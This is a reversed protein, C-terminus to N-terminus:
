NKNFIKKFLDSFYIAGYLSLHDLDAFYLGKKDGLYCYNEDCQKISLDIFNDGMEDFLLKKVKSFNNDYLTKDINLEKKLQDNSIYRFKLKRSLESPLNYSPNQLPGILYVEKGSKKIKNVLNILSKGFLMYDPDDIYKDNYFIKKYQWSTGIIITNIKKDNIYTEFNNKAIINCDKSINLHLTPLCGTMPILLGNRNKDELHKIISPAYMQAHSNGVLALDYEKNSNNNLYCSRSNSYLKFSIPNCRYNTQTAMSIVDSSYSEKSYNITKNFNNLNLSLILIVLLSLSYFTKKISYEYRFKKEVLYYSLSSLIIVFIFSLLKILFSVESIYYYKFYVLVPWHWLYLSFSMLGITRIYKNLFIKNTFNNVKIKKSLLIATSFIILSGRPFGKIEIFFGLIVLLVLIIIELSNHIKKSNNVFYVMALIGFGFNWIRTPLLFFAPNAGGIYIIYYNLFFSILTISLIVVFFIFKNRFFKILILFFFPFFIYFQEEISLSWLHLLPKLEDTTTFYGGTLWFYINATFSLSSFLSKSFQTLDSFVFLYFSIVSCILLLFLTAPIIRRIRRLYFNKLSFNNKNFNKYIQYSIVYGSIVFFLDVGLYGSPLSKPFYHFIIVGIVALARLSDIEPRYYQKM